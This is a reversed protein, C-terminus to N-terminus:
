ASASVLAIDHEVMRRIMEEFSTQRPNWDLEQIARTPDCCLYPVEKPRFFRPNIRVRVAGDVRLVTNETCRGTADDGEWVMKATPYAVRFATQVLERVSRHEGTGIVYDRLEGTKRAREVMAHMAWVYDPAYGWDRVADVNGLEICEQLGALIMAVARTIKRTVFQVGRIESEHNFLIGCVVKARFHPDARFMRMACYADYKSKGYVGAPTFPTDENQVPYQSLDAKGFLESTLAQYMYCAPCVNLMAQLLNVAGYHNTAQVEEPMQEAFQVHTFAALNFLMQPKYKELIHHLSTPSLLNGLELVFQGQAMYDRLELLRLRGEPYYDSTCRVLGVVFYGLKVLLRTLYAGDQGTVGTVFARKQM